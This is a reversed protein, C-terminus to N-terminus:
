EGIFIQGNDKEKDGLKLVDNNNNIWKLQTTGSSFKDWVYWAYTQMGTEYKGDERIETGLHPRRVFIYVRALPFETDQWLKVFREYGHLYALPLLFAIKKTAIEKAKLIFELALSFPPNTIINNYKNSYDFFDVGHKLDSFSVSYDYDYLITCIHGDGFAPELIEGEFRENDLLHKTISYPTPYFDGERRDKKKSNGVQCCKTTM